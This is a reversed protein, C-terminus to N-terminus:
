DNNGTEKLTRKVIELKLSGSHELETANGYGRAKGKKELIYQAVAINSYRLQEHLVSEATDLISEEQEKMKDRFKDCKELWSYYTTRCIGAARCASAINFNSNEYAFLWDDMKKKYNM